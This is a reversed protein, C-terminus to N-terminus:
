LEKRYFRRIIDEYGYGGDEFRHVEFDSLPNAQYHGATQYRSSDSNLTSVIGQRDITM